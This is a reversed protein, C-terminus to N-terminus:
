DKPTGLKDLAARLRRNGWSERKSTPRNSRGDQRSEATSKRDGGFIREWGIAYQGLDHRARSGKGSM